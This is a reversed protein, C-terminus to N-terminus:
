KSWAASAITPRRPELCDNFQAVVDLAVKSDGGEMMPEIQLVRKPRWHGGSYSPENWEDDGRRKTKGGGADEPADRRTAEM